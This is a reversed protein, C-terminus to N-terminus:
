KSEEGANPTQNLLHPASCRRHRPERDGLVDERAGCRECRWTITTGDDAVPAFDCELFEDAKSM